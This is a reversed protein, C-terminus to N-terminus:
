ALQEKEFNVLKEKWAKNIPMDVINSILKKTKQKSLSLRKISRRLERSTVSEPKIASLARLMSGEPKSAWKLKQKTIHRVEVVERGIRFTRSPGTTWYVRKVPAQTQWGLRYAEEIGQRVLIYGNEKAWKSAVKQASPKIQMFPVSKLTKPRAYYGKAVRIVVKEKSLRSFAKQVASITGLTYFSKISFPIGKELRLIRQKVKEAVSM